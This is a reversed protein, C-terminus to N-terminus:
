RCISLLESFINRGVCPVDQYPPLCASSAFPAFTNNQVIAAGQYVAGFQCRAAAAGKIILEGSLCCSLASRESKIRERRGGLVKIVTVTFM